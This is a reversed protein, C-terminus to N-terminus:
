LLAGGAVVLRRLATCARGRMSAVHLSRPQANPTTPRCHPWIVAMDPALRAGCRTPPARASQHTCAASQAACRSFGPVRLCPELPATGWNGARDGMGCSPPRSPGLQAIPAGPTCPPLPRGCGPWSLCGRCESHDGGEAASNCATARPIVASIAFRPLAQGLHSGEGACPPAHQHLAPATSQASPERSSGQLACDQEKCVIPM